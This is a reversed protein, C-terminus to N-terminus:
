GMHNTKSIRFIPQIDIDGLNAQIYVILYNNKIAKLASDDIHIVSGTTDLIQNGSQQDAALTLETELALYEAARHAYGDAYPQGMWKAMAAMSPNDMKAQILTDVDYHAFGNAKAIRHATYSKGINSMGILAISLDGKARKADFDASSLLM